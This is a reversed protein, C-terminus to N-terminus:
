NEEDEVSSINTEITDTEDDVSAEPIKTWLISLYYSLNNTDSAPVESDRPPNKNMKNIEAISLKPFLQCYNILLRKGDKVSCTRLKKVMPGEAATFDYGTQESAKTENFIKIQSSLQASGITRSKTVASAKSEIEGAKLINTASRSQRDTTRSLNTGHASSASNIGEMHKELQKLYAVRDKMNRLCRQPGGAASSNRQRNLVDKISLQYQWLDSSRQDSRHSELWSISKSFACEVPNSTTSINSFHQVLSDYLNPYWEKFYNDFYESVAMGPTWTLTDDRKAEEKEEEEDEDEGSLARLKTIFEDNAMRVLEKRLDSLRLGYFKVIGDTGILDERFSNAVVATVESHTM